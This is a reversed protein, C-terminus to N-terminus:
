VKHGAMQIDEWRNQIKSGEPYLLIEQDDVIYSEPFEFERRGNFRHM